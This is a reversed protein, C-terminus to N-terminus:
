DGVDGMQPSPIDQELIQALQTSLKAMGIPKTIYGKIMKKTRADIGNPGEEDYGSVLIIKADADQELIRECSLFSVFLLISTVLFIILKKM